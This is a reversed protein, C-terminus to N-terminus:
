EIYFKGIYNDVTEEDEHLHTFLSFRVIQRSPDFIGCRSAMAGLSSTLNKSFQTVSALSTGKIGDIEEKLNDRDELSFDSINLDNKFWLPEGKDNFKVSIRLLQIRSM